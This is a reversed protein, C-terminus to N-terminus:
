QAEAIVFGDVPHLFAGDSVHPILTVACSVIGERSNSENFTAVEDVIAHPVESSERVHLANM